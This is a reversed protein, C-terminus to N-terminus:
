FNVLFGAGLSKQSYNYDILSQGYGSFGQVYGKLNAALPFAWGFQLAGHRTSFNRRGMVSLEHGDFRYTARVDGHGMFDTIDINDNDSRANDLRKWLRFSVGFKGKEAGVEAYIRNWSRSLTSTQGNSQHNLALTLYRVDLVGLDLALPTTLMLEPQYNTERFPSSAARNYAQWFSNQTYGFWLDVPSSMLQEILKMKCSIQYTLEVHKSKIGAPTFDKFPADNSSTSYNALLLYTDHHPRFNFVGRKASRDLEWEQVMRSVTDEPPITTLAAVKPPVKPEPPPASPQTRAPADAAEAVKDAAGVALPAVANEGAAQVTPATKSLGDYCALRASADGLVACRELRLELDSAQALALAPAIGLTLLLTTKPPVRM